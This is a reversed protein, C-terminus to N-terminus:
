RSSATEATLAQILPALQSMVLHRAVEETMDTLEGRAVVSFSNPTLDVFQLSVAFPLHRLREAGQVLFTEPDISWAVDFRFHFRQVPRRSLNHIASQIIIGNPIMMPTGDDTILSTYMLNIDTVVGSYGPKMAEHPFSPTLLPYQWAVFVIHDGVEFPHFLVLGIGAILNGFFSQGALGIIVTIFASGFVVSSLGVGLAAVFALAIALYLVLRVLFRLTTLQRSGLRDSPIRFLGRELLYSIAGGILLVVLAKLPDGYTKELHPPLRRILLTLVVGVMLTSGILLGTRRWPSQRM